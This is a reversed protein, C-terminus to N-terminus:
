TNAAVCAATFRAQSLVLMIGQIDLIDGEILSSQNSLLRYIEKFLEIDMPVNHINALTKRALEVARTAKILRNTGSEVLTRFKEDDILSRTRPDAHVDAALVILRDTKEKLESLSDGMFAVEGELMERMYIDIELM